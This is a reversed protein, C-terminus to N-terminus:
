SREGGKSDPKPKAAPKPPPFAHHDQAAPVEHTAPRGTAAMRAMAAKAARRREAQEQEAKARATAQAKAAEAAEAATRDRNAATAAERRQALPVVQDTRVRVVPPPEHRDILAGDPVSALPRDSGSGAPAVPTAVAATAEPQADDLPSALTGARSNPRPPRDGDPAYPASSGGVVPNGDVSVPAADDLPSVSANGGTPPRPQPNRADATNRFDAWENFGPPEPPLDFKSGGAEDRKGPSRDPQKDPDPKSRKRSRGHNGLAKSMVFAGLLRSGPISVPRGRVIRFSQKHVVWMMWVIVLLYLETVPIHFFHGWYFGGTMKVWVWVLAAQGIASAMCAGLMRWWLRSAWETVPLGHCALAIPACVVVFFFAINRVIATFLLVLLCAATALIWLIEALLNPKECAAEGNDAVCDEYEFGAESWGSMTLQSPFEELQTIPALSPDTAVVSFGDVVENAAAMAQQVIVASIGALLLGVVLRPAIERITYRTQLTEHSMVLVGGVVVVLTYGAVALILFEEALPKGSDWSLSSLHIWDMETLVDRLGDRMAELLSRIWELLGDMAEVLWEPM